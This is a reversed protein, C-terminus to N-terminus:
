EEGIFKLHNPAADGIAQRYGRPLRVRKGAPIRMREPAYIICDGLIRTPGNGSNEWVDFRRVVGEVDPEAERIPEVIEAAGSESSNVADAVAEVGAGRKSKPDKAGAGDVVAPTETEASSTVVAM